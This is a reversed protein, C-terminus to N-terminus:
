VSRRNNNASRQNHIKNVFSEQSKLKTELENVKKELDVNKQNLANNKSQLQAISEKIDHKELTDLRSNLSKKEEKEREQKQGPTEAGFANYLKKGPTTEIVVNMAKSFVATTIFAIIYNQLKTPGENKFEEYKSELTRQMDKIQEDTWGFKKLISAISDIAEKENKAEKLWVSLEEELIKVNFQENQLRNIEERSIIQPPILQLSHFSTLVQLM